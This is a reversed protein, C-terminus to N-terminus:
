KNEKGTLWANMVTASGHCNGPAINYFWMVYLSLLAKNEADARWIANRLDNCIVATLFDGPQVRDILYRMLASRMREPIRAYEGSFLEAETPPTLQLDLPLDPLNTADTM